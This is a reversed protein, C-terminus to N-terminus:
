AARAFEGHLEALAQDRESLAAELTKFRGRYYTKYNLNVYVIFRKGDWVINKYGTKNRPHKGQNRMNESATAPRLNSIRNHHEITDKHDIGKLAWQGHVYLWALQHAGYLVGDIRIVIYGSKNQCGAQTGVMTSKRSQLWVFDGSEPHYYFLEKLREQTLVENQWVASSGAAM